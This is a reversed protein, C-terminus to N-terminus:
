DAALRERKHVRACDMPGATVLVDPKGASSNRRWSRCESSARGEAWRIEVAINQGEVHGFDRLGRRFAEVPPTSAASGNALIGVRPVKATPQAAAAVPTVAVLATASVIFRRRSIGTM